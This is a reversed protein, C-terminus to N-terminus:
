ARGAARSTMSRRYALITSSAFFMCFLFPSSGSTCFFPPDGNRPGWVRIKKPRKQRQALTVNEAAVRCGHAAEALHQAAPKALRKPAACASHSLRERCGKFASGRMM